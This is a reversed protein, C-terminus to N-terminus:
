VEDRDHRGGKKDDGSRATLREYQLRVGGTRHGAVGDVELDHAFRSTSSRFRSRKPVSSVM